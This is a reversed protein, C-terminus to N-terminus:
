NCALQLSKVCMLHIVIGVMSYVKYYICKLLLTFKGKLVISANTFVNAHIQHSTQICINTKKCEIMELIMNTELQLSIM